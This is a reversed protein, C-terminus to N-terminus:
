EYLGSLVPSKANGQEAALKYLKVAAQYDQTVGQGYNYMVGLNYQAYAYGQEAAKKYWKIAAKYNQTVVLGLKYM